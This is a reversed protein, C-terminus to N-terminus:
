GSAEPSPRVRLRMFSYWVLWLGYFEDRSSDDLKIIWMTRAASGRGFLEELDSM